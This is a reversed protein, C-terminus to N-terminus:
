LGLAERLPGDIAPTRSLASGGPEENGKFDHFLGGAEKVIVSMASVDWRSVKPDVMADARGTAVLAHGYADCWTRVALARRSLGVLKDLVGQDALSALGGCCVVARSWDSESKVRCREGNWFCGSGEEAWVTEDLAPFYAAGIVPRRDVEYAVLTGFLPVGAVFSKTGDIPDVVWRDESGAEGGEEEGLVAEGPYREAIRQRVLREAGTDAETVPTADSKLGFSRGERFLAMTSRGAERATEVAFELRSTM